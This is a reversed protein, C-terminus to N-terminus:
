LLPLSCVRITLTADVKNAPTFSRKPMPPMKRGKSGAVPAATSNMRFASAFASRPAAFGAKTAPRALCMPLRYLM